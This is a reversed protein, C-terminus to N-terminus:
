KGTANKKIYEEKAGEEEEKKPQTRQYKTREKKESKEELYWIKENLLMQYHPIRHM